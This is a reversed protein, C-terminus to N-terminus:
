INYGTPALYAEGQSALAKSAFRFAFIMTINTTTYPLTKYGGQSALAKPM